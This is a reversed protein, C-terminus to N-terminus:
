SLTGTPTGAIRSTEAPVSVASDAPAMRRVAVGLLGTGDYYGWDRSDAGHPNDARLVIRGPPVHSEPVDALPPFYDRPVPDGPVAVARKIIWLGSGYIAEPDAAVVVAGSRLRDVRTRRVLVRDGEVFTPEMSGGAVTVVVLRTRVYGVAAIIVLALAAGVAVVGTM